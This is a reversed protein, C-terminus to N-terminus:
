PREESTPEPHLPGPIGLDDAASQVRTVTSPKARGPERYVRLVQREPMIARAAIQRRQQPTPLAKM